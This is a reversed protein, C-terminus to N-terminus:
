LYISKIVLFLVKRSLIQFTYNVCAIPFEFEWTCFIFLVIHFAMNICPFHKWECPVEIIWNFPNAIKLGSWSSQSFNRPNSCILWSLLFLIWLYISLKLFIKTLIRITEQDKGQLWFLQNICKYRTIVRCWIVCYDVCSWLKWTLIYVESSVFLLGFRAKM